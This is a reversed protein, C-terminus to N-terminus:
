GGDQAAPQAAQGAPAASPYVIRGAESESAQGRDKAGPRTGDNAFVDGSSGARKEDYRNYGIYVLLALALAGAILWVGKGM